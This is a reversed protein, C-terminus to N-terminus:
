TPDLTGFPVFTNANEAYYGYQGQYIAPSWEEASIARLDAVLSAEGAHRLKYIEWGVEMGIKVAVRPAGSSSGALSSWVRGDIEVMLHVGARELELRADDDLEARLSTGGQGAFLIGAGDWNRVLTELIAREAWNAGDSEHAYIDILYAHEPQFAVFLVHESGAPMLHLHHIGHHALLRDRGHAKWVRRSLYSELNAGAEIDRRIAALGDAYRAPLDSAAFVDSELVRRPRAGPFRARWTVYDQVLDRLALADVDGKYHDRMADSCHTRIANELGDILDGM